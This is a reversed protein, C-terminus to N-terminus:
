TEHETEKVEKITEYDIVPNNFAKAILDFDARLDLLSNGMPAIPKDSAGVMKGVDDYYIEAIYWIISDDMHTNPYVKSVIRYEFSGM